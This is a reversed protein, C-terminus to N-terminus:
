RQLIKSQIEPFSTQIHFRAIQALLTSQIKAEVIPVQNVKHGLNNAHVIQLQEFPLIQACRLAADVYALARLPMITTAGLILRLITGKGMPSDAVDSFTEMDIKGVSEVYADRNKILTSRVRQPSNKSNNNM